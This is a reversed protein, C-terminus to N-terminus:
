RQRHLTRPLCTRVGHECLRRHGAHHERLNSPQEVCRHKAACDRVVPSLRLARAASVAPGACMLTALRELWGNLRRLENTWSAVIAQHILPAVDAPDAFVSQAAWGVAITLLFARM